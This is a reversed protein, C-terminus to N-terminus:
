EDPSSLRLVLMLVNIVLAASKKINIKMMSECYAASM